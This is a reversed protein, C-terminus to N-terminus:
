NLHIPPSLPRPQHLEELYARKPLAQDLLHANQGAFDQPKALRLVAAVGRWSFSAHMDSLEAVPGELHQRHGIGANGITSGSM